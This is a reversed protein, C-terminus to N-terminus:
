GEELQLTVHSLGFQEKLTDQTKSLVEATFSGNKVVLHATLVVKDTNVSWIHLNHVTKVEPMALLSKEVDGVTIHAPASEMLVDLAERILGLANALVLLAVLSGVVPDAWLWNFKLILVGAVMASISGLMDSLVHLYAGRMNLSRHQHQHLIAAAVVNVVLGGAAVWLMIGAKIPEPHAFREISETCIYCALGVLLLGNILAALVEVRDYGFTRRECADRKTVITIALLALGLSAVDGLMHAADALLAMSGSFWAGLFEMVMYLATLAFVILLRSHQVHKHHHHHHSHHHDAHDHM